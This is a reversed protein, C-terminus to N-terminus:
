LRLLAVEDAMDHSLVVYGDLHEVLWHSGLFSQLRRVNRQAAEDLKMPQSMVANNERLTAADGFDVLTLTTSVGRRELTLTGQEYTMSDLISPRFFANLSESIERERELAEVEDEVPDMRVKVTLTKEDVPFVGDEDHIKAQWNNIGTLGSLTALIDLVKRPFAHDRMLEVFVVYYGDENPAPSVDTDLLSVASKQIFRNLDNAPDRDQVFFGVVIADDDIKSEYEDISLLPLVLDELDGERLGEVLKM